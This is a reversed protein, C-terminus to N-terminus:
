SEAAVVVDHLLEESGRAAEAGLGGDLLHM